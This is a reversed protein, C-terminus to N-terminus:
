LNPTRPTLAKETSIRSFHSSYTVRAAAETRAQTLWAPFQPHGARVELLMSM